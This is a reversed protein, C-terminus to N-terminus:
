IFLHFYFKSKKQIWSVIFYFLFKFFNSLRFSSIQNKVSKIINGNKLSQLSVTSKIWKFQFLYFGFNVHIKIWKHSEVYFMSECLNENACKVNTKTKLEGIKWCKYFGTVFIIGVFWFWTPLIIFICWETLNTPTCRVCHNLLHLCFFCVCVTCISHFLYFDIHIHIHHM